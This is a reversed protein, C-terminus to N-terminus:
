VCFNDRMKVFFIPRRKNRLQAAHERQRDKVQAGLSKKKGPITKSDLREKVGRSGVPQGKGTFKVCKAKKRIYILPGISLRNMIECRQKVDWRWFRKISTNLGDCGTFNE